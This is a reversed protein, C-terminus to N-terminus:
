GGAGGQTIGGRSRLMTAMANEPSMSDTANPSLPGAAADVNTMGGGGASQQPQGAQGQV